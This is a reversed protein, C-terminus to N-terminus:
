RKQRRDNGNRMLDALRMLSSLIMLKEWEPMGNEYYRVFDPPLPSPASALIVEGRSTLRLDVRRRDEASQSREILGKKELREVTGSITAPSLHVRKSLESVPLPSELALQDLIALQTSTIGAAKHLSRSQIDMYQTISRLSTYLSDLHPSNM